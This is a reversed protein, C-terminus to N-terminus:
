LLGKTKEEIEQFVDEVSQEGNIEILVNKESYHEIVPEVEEKFWRLRERIDEEKDDERRRKELRSYSEEESIKIYIVMPSDIKLMLFLEDLMRAEYLKRPNGDFIIGKEKKNYCEIIFPMWLSFVVPTPILGGKKLVESVNNGIVDEEKAKERLLDGTNVVSFGTKEVLFKLQTGKGCGPRGILFIVKLSM